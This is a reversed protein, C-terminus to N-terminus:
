GLNLGKCLARRTFLDDKVPCGPLVKDLLYYLSASTNRLVGPTGGLRGCLVHLNLAEYPTLTLTYEKVEPAPAPKPPHYTTELIM